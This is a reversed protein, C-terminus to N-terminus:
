KLVKLDEFTASSEEVLLVLLLTEKTLLLKPKSLKEECLLYWRNHTSELFLFVFNVIKVLLSNHLIKELELLLILLKELLFIAAATLKITLKSNAIKGSLISAQHLVFTSAYM